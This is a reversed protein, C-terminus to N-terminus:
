LKLEEVWDCSQTYGLTRLIEGHNAEMLEADEVSFEDKWDGIRGSRLTFNYKKKWKDFSQREIVRSVKGSPAEEGIIAKYLESLMLEPQNHMQEYTIWFDPQNDIWGNIFNNLGKGNIPPNISRIVSEISPPPNKAARYHRMSVVMDRPDRTVLVVKSPEGNYGLGNYESNFWHTKRIMYKDELTEAFLTVTEFDPTAQQPANFLDCCTRWLWTNGSRPFGTTYIEIM